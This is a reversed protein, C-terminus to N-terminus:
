SKKSALGGLIDDVLRFTKLLTRFEKMKILSVDEFYVAKVRHKISYTFIKALLKEIDPLRSMKARISDTEYQYQILDEVAM